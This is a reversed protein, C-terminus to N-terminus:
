RMRHGEVGNGSVGFDRSTRFAFLKVGKHAKAFPLEHIILSEMEGKALLRLAQELLRFGEQDGEILVTNSSKFDEFYGLHIFAV